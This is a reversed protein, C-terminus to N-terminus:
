FVTLYRVKDKDKGKKDGKDGKDKGKKEEEVVPAFPDVGQIPLSSQKYITTM